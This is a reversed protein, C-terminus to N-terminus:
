KSAFSGMLSNLKEKFIELDEVKKKAVTLQEKAISLERQLNQCESRKKDGESRSKELDRRVQKLATLMEENKARQEALQSEYQKAENKLDAIHRENADVQSQLAGAEALRQRVEFEATVVNLRMEAVAKKQERLRIQALAVDHLLADRAAESASLKANATACSICLAEGDLSPETSLTHDSVTLRLSQQEPCLLLMAVTKDDECNNRFAAEIASKLSGDSLAEDILPHRIFRLAAAPWIVRPDHENKLRQYFETLRACRQPQNSETDEDTNQGFFETLLASTEVCTLALRIIEIVIKPGRSAILNDIVSILLRMPIVNKPSISYVRRFVMLTDEPLKVATTQLISVLVPCEPNDPGKGNFFGRVINAYLPSSAIKLFSVCERSMPAPQHKMA